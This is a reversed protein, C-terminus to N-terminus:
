RSGGQGQRTGIFWVLSSSCAQWALSTTDATQVCYRDINKALIDDNDDAHEGMRLRFDVALAGQTQRVERALEKRPDRFRRMLEYRRDIPILQRDALVNSVAVDMYIPCRHADGAKKSKCYKQAATMLCEVKLRMTASSCAGRDLVRAYETARDLQERPTERVAQLAQALYAVRRDARHTDVNAALLLILAVKV